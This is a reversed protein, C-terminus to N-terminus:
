LHKDLWQDIDKLVEESNLESLLNTYAGPYEHLEKDTITVNQFYSKATEPSSNRDAGGILILLPVKMDTVQEVVRQMARESETLWRPTIKTNCLEDERIFKVFAPDRSIYSTQSDFRRRVDITLRPLVRSLFHLLLRLPVPVAEGTSLVPSVCFVGNLGRPNQGAYALVIAASGTHGMLFIPRDPERARVLQLFADLDELQDSWRNIYGRQAPSRGWGRRDYAYVAYGLPVEHLPLNMYWGSHAFDGHLMVVVARAPSRDPLWRQYYLQLGGSGLYHDEEHKM